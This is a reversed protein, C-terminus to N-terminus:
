GRRLRITGGFSSLRLTAGGAGRAGELRRWPRRGRKTETRAGVRRAPALRFDSVVSGGSYVTAEVRFSADGPATVTIDGSFTRFNYSGGPRLAGGANLSGSVSSAAVEPYDVGDLTIGGSVTSAKFYDGYNGARVGSVEVSGGASYLDARGASDTLRVAGSLSHATVAGSARWVGIRGSLTGVEAGAVGTVFVECSRTKLRVTAGRPVDLVVDGCARRGDHEEETAAAPSAVVEVRGAPGSEDGARRLEVRRAGASGARVEGRDWGRVIICGSELTLSVSVDPAAAVARAASEAKAGAVAGSEARANVAPAGAWAAMLAVALSLVSKM